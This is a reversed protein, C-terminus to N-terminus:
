LLENLKQYDFGSWSNDWSDGIKVVPFGMFGREKIEKFADVDDYADIATYDIDNSDLWAKTLDCAQCSPKSYIIIKMRGVGKDGNDAYM